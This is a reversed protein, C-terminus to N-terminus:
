RPSEWTARDVRWGEPIKLAELVLVQPYTRDPAGARAETRQTTVRVRGQTATDGDPFTSEVHAVITTTGSFTASRPKTRERAVLAETERAFRETMLPALDTLNVFNGENSFSGYREAFTVSLQRVAVATPAAVPEPTSPTGVVPPVPPTGGTRTLSGVPAPTNTAPEVGVDAPTATRQPRFFLMFVGVVVLVGAIILILRLRRDM